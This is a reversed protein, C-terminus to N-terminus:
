AIVVVFFYKRGVVKYGAIRRKGLAWLCFFVRSVFAFLTKFPYKTDRM